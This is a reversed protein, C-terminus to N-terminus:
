PNDKAEPSEKDEEKRAAEARESALKMRRGVMWYTGAMLAGMGAITWPVKKLAAWTLEPMRTEGLEHKWLLFNLPIASLLLVNTGGVETEGWIRPLYDKPRAGIRRRGEALMEDRTGFLMVEEPCAEVCAPRKGEAIRPRCLICKRVLPAARDWDYRPIGYPCALMCYRCGMCKGEDYVVAGEPSKQLAGVICASVCAPELCHRCQNRVNHNGPRRLITSWRTASLDDIKGQGKWPRDKGLGNEQKCAVICSECGTCRTTDILIAKTTSM